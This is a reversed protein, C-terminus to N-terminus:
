SASDEENRGDVAASVLTESISNRDGQEDVAVSAATAGAPLDKTHTASTADLTEGATEIPLLFVWGLSCKNKAHDWKAPGYNKEPLPTQVYTMDAPFFITYISKGRLGRGKDGVGITTIEGSYWASGNFGTVAVKDSIQPTADRQEPLYARKEERGQRGLAKLWCYMEASQCETADVTETVFRKAANAQEERSVAAMVSDYVDGCHDFGEGFKFNLTSSPVPVKALRNLRRKKQAAWIDKARKVVWEEELGATRGALSAPGNLNVYMLAEITEQKLCARLDTVITNLKSFASEVPAQSEMTVLWTAALFKMCPLEKMQNEYSWAVLTKLPVRKFEEFKSWEDQPLGDQEEQANLESIRNRERENQVALLHKENTKAARIYERQISDWEKELASRDLAFEDDHLKDSPVSYFDAVTEFATKFHMDLSKNTCPVEPLTPHHVNFLHTLAETLERDPWMQKHEQLNAIHFKRIQEDIWVEDRRYTQRVEIDREKVADVFERWKSSRTASDPKQVLDNLRDIVDDQITRCTLADLDRAQLKKSAIALTPVVDSLACVFALFEQSAFKRAVGLATIDARGADLFEDMEDDGGEGARIFMKIQTAMDEAKCMSALARDLSLWRTTAVRRLPRTDTEERANTESMLVHKKPSFDVLNGAQVLTPYWHKSLYPISNVAHKIALAGTHSVCKATILRPFKARLQTAVGNACGHMTSCTDFVAMSLQSDVCVNDRKLQYLISEVLVRATGRPLVHMGAFIVVPQGNSLVVKYCICHQSRKAADSTEDSAISIRCSNEIREMWFERVAQGLCELFERNARNSAYNARQSALGGDDTDTPCDHFASANSLLQLLPKYKALAVSEKALFYVAHVRKLIATDHRTLSTEIGALVSTQEACWKVNVQHASPAPLPGRGTEQLAKATNWKKMSMGYIHKRCCLAVDKAISACKVFSLNPDNNRAAGNDGAQFCAKCVIGQSTIMFADQFWRETHLKELARIQHKPAERWKVEVPGTEPIRPGERSRPQFREYDKRLELTGKKYSRKAAKPQKSPPRPPQFAPNGADSDSSDQLGCHCWLWM